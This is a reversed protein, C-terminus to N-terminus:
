ASLAWHYRTPNIGVWVVLFYQVAIFFYQVACCYALHYRIEQLQGPSFAGPHDGSEYWFRHQFHLESASQSM